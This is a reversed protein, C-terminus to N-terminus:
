GRHQEEFTLLQDDATQYCDDCVTDHRYTLWFPVFVFVEDARNWITPFDNSMVRHGLGTECGDCIPADADFGYEHDIDETIFKDTPMDWIRYTM